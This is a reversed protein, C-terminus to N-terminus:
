DTSEGPNGDSAEEMEEDEDEDEGEEEEGDMDADDSPGTTEHLPEEDSAEMQTGNTTDDTDAVPALTLNAVPVEFDVQPKVAQVKQPLKRILPKTKRRRRRRKKKVVPKTEKTGLPDEAHKQNHITFGRETLQYVKCLECYYPTVVTHRDVHKLYSDIKLFRQNCYKCRFREGPHSKVHNHLGGKIEFEEGCVPCPYNPREFHNQMHRKLETKKSFRRDCETCSFAMQSDVNAHVKQHTKLFAKHTFNKGCQYCHYPKLIPDISVSVRKSFLSERYRNEDQPEVKVINFQEDPMEEEIPAGIMEADAPEEKPIHSFVTSPGNVGDGAAPGSNPNGISAKPLTEKGGDAEESPSTTGHSPDTLSPLSQNPESVQSDVQPKAEGEQPLNEIQALNKKPRGGRKVAVQPRGAMAAELEEREHGKQHLLFGRETLQYVKCKDCYYPTVVTHRDVHRLYTDIKLFGQDCYKCRFREGPHKKIHYHLSGKMEFEEGCVPCPYNPRTLHNRMHKKLGSKKSFRRDCMTCSYSMQTEVSAHVKEHAKLFAKHTFTKGCQECNHQKLLPKVNLPNPKDFSCDGYGNEDPPEMKVITLPQAKEPEEPMEDEDPEDNTESEDPDEDM